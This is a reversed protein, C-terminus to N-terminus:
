VEGYKESAKVWREILRSTNDLHQQIMIEAAQKISSFLNEDRMINAIKMQVIGTQKTGLVEGPGRLELDKQAIVFGDTSSRMVSLREKALESLPKQYLLICHSSQSGRGIRGRLQHLQSLGLREANEVIILSANPVDVGVEIVTTAVLLHYHGAKFDQMIKEKDTSKMRGHILGIHLEPLAHALHEATKGAAQCQLVESEEILTCVWYAQRGNQCVERIREIVEARRDNSIVATKIPQRGHPLEDIISHDLDAYASMALTRPIPTATMILQHPYHGHKIGKERLALRQHVGFRHQEDIVVLALKTFEVGAQFLVHTGIVINAEGKAIQELSKERAKGTLQGSLCTINLGFPELWRKFVKLHQEALLETPAMIATQCQNEVALLAACAAVITKGCGVDGQVLRLMPHPEALDKEIERIVRQQATTLQFPLTKIFQQLFRKTTKLPIAAHTKTHQRLRSLSLHHALLEEFIIRQQFPHKLEELLKLSINPPPHHLFLLAEKLNPFVFQKLIEQPLLEKLVGTEKERLYELAQNIIKRLSTQQLGETASYIPTLSTEIPLPENEHIFQYDPHMMEYGNPGFKVEGFCRLREGTKLAQTQSFYFNFFRLTLYGTEDQIQCLLQKRKRQVIETATIVGEVLAYQHPKLCRLPILRTRDQYRIPLHFFLDQITYLRLKALRKAVASGVGKLSTCPLQNLYFSDKKM